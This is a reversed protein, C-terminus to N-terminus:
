RAVRDPAAQFDLFVVGALGIRAKAPLKVEVNKDRKENGEYEMSSPIPQGDVTTGLRSLDKIFFEGSQADRRLRVHERSVDPLTDLKLDTRYDRGGRGIVVQNKM